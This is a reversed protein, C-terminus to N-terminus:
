QDLRVHLCRADREPIWVGRERLWEEAKKRNEGKPIAISNVLEFNKM